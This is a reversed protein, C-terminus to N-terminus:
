DCRAVIYVWGGMASAPSIFREALASVEGPAAERITEGDNPLNGQEIILVEEGEDPIRVFHNDRGPQMGLDKGCIDCVMHSYGGVMKEVLSAQHGEHYTKM